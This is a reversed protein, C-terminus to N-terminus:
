CNNINKILKRRDNISAYVEDILEPTAVAPDYFVDEAKKKIYEYDSEKKTTGMASEYLRLQRNCCSRCSKLICKKYPIVRYTRRTFERFSDRDFGKFDKVYKAFSKVNQKLINSHIYTFACSFVCLSV